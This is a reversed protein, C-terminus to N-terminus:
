PASSGLDINELLRVFENLVTKDQESMDLFEIGVDYREVDKDKVLHYSAVRGV